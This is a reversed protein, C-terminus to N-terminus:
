GEEVKQELRMIDEQLREIEKMLFGEDVSGGQQISEKDLVVDADGESEDGGVEGDVRFEDTSTSSRDERIEEFKEIMRDLISVAEDYDTLIAGRVSIIDRRFASYSPEGIREKNEEAFDSLQDLQRRSVDTNRNEIGQKAKELKEVLNM